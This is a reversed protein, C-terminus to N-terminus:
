PGSPGVRAAISPPVTLGQQRYQAVLLELVARSEASDPSGTRAAALIEEDSPLLAGPAVSRLQARMFQLLVRLSRQRYPAPFVFQGDSRKPEVATSVGDFGQPDNGRMMALLEELCLGGDANLDLAEFDLDVPSGRRLEQPSLLGDGDFDLAALGPRVADQPTWPEVPRCGALLLLALLRRSV